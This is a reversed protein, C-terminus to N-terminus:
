IEHLSLECASNPASGDTTAKMEEGLWLFINRWSPCCHFFLKLITPILDFPMSLRVFSSIDLYFLMKTNRMSKGNELDWKGMYYDILDWEIRINISYFFFISIVLFFVFSNEWMFSTSINWPFNEDFNKSKEAGREETKISFGSFWSFKHLACALRHLLNKTHWTRKVCEVGRVRTHDPVSTSSSLFDRKRHCKQPLKWHKENVRQKRIFTIHTEYILHVFGHSISKHSPHIHKTPQCCVFRPFLIKQENESTKRPPRVEDYSM